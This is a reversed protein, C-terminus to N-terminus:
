SGLSPSLLARPAEPCDGELPCLAQSPCTEWTMERKDGRLLCMECGWSFRKETLPSSQTLFHLHCSQFDSVNYVHFVSNKNQHSMLLAM